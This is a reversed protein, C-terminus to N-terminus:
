CCCHGNLSITQQHKRVSRAHTRAHTRQQVSTNTDTQAASSLPKLSLIGLATVRHATDTRRTLLSYQRVATIQDCLTREIIHHFAQPLHQRTKLTHSCANNSLDTKVRCMILHEVNKKLNNNSKTIFFNYTETCATSITHGQSLRLYKAM